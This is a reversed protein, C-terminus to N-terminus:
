LFLTIVTYIKLIKNNGYSFTTTLINILNDFHNQKFQFCVKLKVYISYKLHRYIYYTSLILLFLKLIKYHRSFAIIFYYYTFNKNGVFINNKNNNIMMYPIQIIKVKLGEGGLNCVIYVIKQSLSEKFNHLYQLM